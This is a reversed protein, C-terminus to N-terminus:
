ATEERVPMAFPRSGSGSGTYGSAEGFVWRSISTESIEAAQIQAEVRMPVGSPNGTFGLLPENVVRHGSRLTSANPITTSAQPGCRIAMGIMVGPLSFTHDVEFDTGNTSSGSIDDEPVLLIESDSDGLCSVPLWCYADSGESQTFRLTGAVPNRWARAHTKVIGFQAKVTLATWGYDPSVVADSEDLLSVSAGSILQNGAALVVLVETGEPPAYEIERVLQNEAGQAVVPNHVAVLPALEPPVVIDGIGGPAGGGIADIAEQIDELTGEIGTLDIDPALPTVSGDAGVTYDGVPASHDGPHPLLLDSLDDRERGWGQGPAPTARHRSPHVPVPRQPNRPGPSM